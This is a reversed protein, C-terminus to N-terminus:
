EVNQGEEEAIKRKRMEAFFTTYFDNTLERTFEDDKEPSFEIEDCLAKLDDNATQRSFDGWDVPNYCFEASALVNSQFKELAEGELKKGIANTLNEVLTFERQRDLKKIATLWEDDLGSEELGKICNESLRFAALYELLNCDRSLCQRLQKTAINRLKNLTFVFDARTGATKALAHLRAILANSPLHEFDAQADIAKTTIRECIIRQVITTIIRRINAPPKGVPKPTEQKAEEKAEDRKILNPQTQLGFACRGFGENTREGLGTEQITTLAEAKEPSLALLFTSGAAFCVESPKKLRWISVFNEMEAKKVFAMEVKVEGLQKQLVIELEGVDTTSFGCANYLILDSLLTMSILHQPNGEDDVPWVIRNQVPEPGDLFAFEVAGYQANRSRGIHSRWGNGCRQLLNQLDDKEGFITGAFTQDAVLSEYNFILGEKSVGKERDRAHHFNIGTEVSRTQVFGDQLKCFDGVHKAQEPETFLRDYVEDGHKEQEISFPTPYHEFESDAEDRWFIYANSIKLSGALLWQYFENNQHALRGLDQKGILQKALLGLVTSGPIHRETTVMNTDGSIASITVPSRTIIHYKLCHM